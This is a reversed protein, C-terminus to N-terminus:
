SAQFKNRPQDVQLQRRRYEQHAYTSAGRCQWWGGGGCSIPLRTICKQYCELQSDKGAFRRKDSHWCHRCWSRSCVISASHETDGSCYLRKRMEFSWRKTWNTADFKKRHVKYGWEIFWTVLTSLSVSLSRSQWRQMNKLKTSPVSLFTMNHPRSDITVCLWELPIAGSHDTWNCISPLHAQM